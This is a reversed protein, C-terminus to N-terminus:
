KGTTPTGTLIFFHHDATLAETLGGGHMVVFNARNVVSSDHSITELKEASPKASTNMM